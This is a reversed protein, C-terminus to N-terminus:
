GAIADLEAVADPPLELSGAAVNERLHAVSSTGPILLVNPSRQLLWAQAVQMPTAGLDAAVRDLADSRLPSFGGLPFYPVYAIEDDALQSVLDDDGRSGLNYVNQVCVVPAITRAEAIQQADVASVGLHRILGEQQLDALAEFREAISGPESTVRDAATRNRLNVVDLMDVGLTRLNEHVQERLQEPRDANPWGGRATRVVGVKTAIVLDEPYPSLAERILENAVHPGYFDATDIHRVGLEVATRLVALAEDRDKPPGLVGDGPLRMAGLGVRPVRRDGLLWGDTREDTM